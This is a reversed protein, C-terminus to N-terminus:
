EKDKIKGSLGLAITLTHLSWQAITTLLEEPFDPFENLVAKLDDDSIEEEKAKAVFSTLLEDLQNMIMTTCHIKEINKETM